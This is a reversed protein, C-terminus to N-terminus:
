KAYAHVVPVPTGDGEPAVHTPIAGASEVVSGDALHLWHQPLVRAIAAEAAEAKERLLEALQAETARLRAALREDAAPEAETGPDPAAAQAGFPAMTPDASM